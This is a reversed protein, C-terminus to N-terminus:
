RRRPGGAGPGRRRGGRRAIAGLLDAVGGAQDLSVRRGPDRALLARVEEDAGAARLANLLEAVGYPDEVDVSEVARTALTRIADAAGVAHLGALLWGVDRTAEVDAESAIRSALEHLAEAAGAERLARLLRAL